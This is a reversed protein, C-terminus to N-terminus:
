AGTVSRSTGEFINEIWIPESLGTPFSIQGQDDLSAISAGLDLLDGGGLWDRSVEEAQTQYVDPLALNPYIVNGLNFRHFLLDLASGAVKWTGRIELLAKLCDQLGFNAALAVASEDARSSQLHAIANTYIYHVMYPNSCQFRNAYRYSALLTSSEIASSRYLYLSDNRTTNNAIFPRHLLLMATHFLLHMTHIPHAVQQGPILQLSTPLDNRWAILEGHLLTVNTQQLEPHVPRRRGPYFQQVIRSLIRCLRIVRISVQLGIYGGGPYEPVAVDFDDERILPTRGLRLSTIVDLVYCSWWSLQRARKETPSLLPWEDSSRDLGLDQAVRIAKGSILDSSSIRYRSPAM